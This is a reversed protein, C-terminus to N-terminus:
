DADVLKEILLISAYFAYLHSSFSDKFSFVPRIFNGDPKKM